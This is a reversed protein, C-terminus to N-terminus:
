DERGFDFSYSVSFLLRQTDNAKTIDALGASVMVPYRLDPQFTTGAVLEDGAWSISISATDAYKGGIGIFAGPDQGYNRAGSSIGGTIMVDPKLTPIVTQTTVLSAASYFATKIASPDGWPAVNSAGVSLGVNKEDYIIRKHLKFGLNGAETQDGPTSSLIGLNAEFGLGDSANGMGIGFAYSGDIPQGSREDELQRNNTIAVAAYAQGHNLGFGSPIGFTSPGVASRPVMSDLVRLVVSPTLSSATSPESILLCIMVTATTVSHPKIEMHM